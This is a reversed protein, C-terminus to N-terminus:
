PPLHGIDAGFFCPIKRGLRDELKMVEGYAADDQSLGYSCDDELMPRGFIIAKAEDLWGANRFHWMVRRTSVSSLECAELFWIIGDEKYKENFEKVRDYKTGVFNGMVDMCGGLFRGEIPSGDWNKTRIETKETLNYGAYPNEPTQIKTREWLDYNTFTNKEGTIFKFADTLSEDWNEMGFTPACPGYVAATDLVTPLIFTFHTNDSYGMYWKPKASKLRELDVYDLTECMLEGGGVSFLVDNESREYWETLEKGCKEPTTSIGIGDGAFSNPGPDVQYGMKQFTEIAKCFASHYPEIYAGFSPACFGITGGKKLPEPYKM